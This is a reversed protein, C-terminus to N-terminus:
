GVKNARVHKRRERNSIKVNERSAASMCALTHGLKKVCSLGGTGKLRKGCRANSKKPDKCVDLQAHHFRTDGCALPTGGDLPLLPLVDEFIYSGPDLAKTLSVFEDFRRSALANDEKSPVIGETGESGIQRGKM